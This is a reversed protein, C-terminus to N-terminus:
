AVPLDTRDAFRMIRPVARDLSLRADAYPTQQSLRSIGQAVNWVSLPNGREHTAALEIAQKAQQKTVIQASFLADIAKDTSEALAKQGARAILQEAEITSESLLARQTTDLGYRWDRRVNDGVHRRRFTAVQRYDWLICNGCIHRVMGIELVLAGAGVESNRVIILKSLGDPNGPESITQQSKLFCIMDRDGRWGFVPSLAGGFQGQPYAEHIQWKGSEILPILSEIVPADQLRGYKESTVARMIQRPGGEPAITIARTYIKGETGALTALGHNLNEAALRAPLQRLYSAPAGVIRASQDFSWHTLVAGPQDQNIRGDSGAITLRVAAQDTGAFEPAKPIARLRGLDITHTRSEEADQKAASLMAYPSAYREDEPRSSWATHLQYSNM